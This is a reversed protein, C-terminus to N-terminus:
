VLGEGRGSELSRSVQFPDADVAVYSIPNTKIMHAFVCSGSNDLYPLSHNSIDLYYKEFNTKRISNTPSFNSHSFISINSTKSLKLCDLSLSKELLGLLGAFLGWSRGLLVSETGSHFDRRYELLSEKFASIIYFNPIEELIRDYLLSHKRSTREKSWKLCCGRFYLHLSCFNRKGM